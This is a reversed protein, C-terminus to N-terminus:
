RDIGFGIKNRCDISKENAFINTSDFDVSLLTSVTDKTPETKLKDTDNFIRYSQKM